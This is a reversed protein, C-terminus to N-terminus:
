DIENCYPCNCIVTGDEFIVYYYNDKEDNNEFDAFPCTPIEQNSLVEYFKLPPVWTGNEDNYGAM